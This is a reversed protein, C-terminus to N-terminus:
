MLIDRCLKEASQSCKRWEDFPPLTTASTLVPSSIDSSSWWTWKNVNSTQCWYISNIYLNMSWLGCSVMPFALKRRIKAVFQCYILSHELDELALLGLLTGDVELIGLQLYEDLIQLLHAGHDGISRELCKTVLSEDVEAWLKLKM